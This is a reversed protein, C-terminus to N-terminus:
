FIYGLGLSYCLPSRVNITRQSYSYADRPDPSLVENFLIQTNLMLNKGLHYKTAVIFHIGLDISNAALSNWFKGLHKHIINQSAYTYKSYAIDAGLGLQFVFSSNNVPAILFSLDAKYSDFSSHITHSYVIDNFIDSYVGARELELESHNRIGTQVSFGKEFQREYKFQFVDGGYVAKGTYTLIQNKQASCLLPVIVSIILIIKKM